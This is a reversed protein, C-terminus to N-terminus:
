HYARLLIEDTKSMTQRTNHLRPCFFICRYSTTTQRNAGHPPFGKTVWNEHPVYLWQVNDTNSTTLGADLPVLRVVILLARPAPPSSEQHSSPMADSHSLQGQTLPLSPNRLSKWMQSVPDGKKNSPYTTSPILIMTLPPRPNADDHHKTTPFKKEPLQRGLSRPGEAVTNRSRKWDDPRHHDTFSTLACRTRRTPMRYM